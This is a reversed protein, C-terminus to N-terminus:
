CISGQKGQIWEQGLPLELTEVSDLYGGGIADSSGGTVVVYKIGTVADTLLASAHGYRGKQLDPGQTWGFTVDDYIYTKKSHGLGTYGGIVMGTNEDDTLVMSHLTIDIPLDPGTSSSLRSRGAAPSPSM